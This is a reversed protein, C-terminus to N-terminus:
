SALKYIYRFKKEGIIKQFGFKNCYQTETMQMKSAHNWLTKKHCVYGENDRYWYSPAVEGDLIWNSAKYITGIHNYTTDAFSVLLKVDLRIKRMYTISQSILHSALNKAQYQPHIALRSLEMVQQYSYGQKFAVEQRIPSSYIIVAILQDGLYYGLNVGSRGVRGAYHYKSIFLEAERYGIVKEKVDYFHFDILSLQSLGLWYKVMELVRHKNNFEHEWIYKLDFEPFYSRLYTAKSKDRAIAKPLNHWYDGQVEILLPKKLNIKDQHNVRCDFCYFGVQCEKAKDDYFQVGLDTLLSYLVLQQSSTQPQNLRKQAQIEKYKPDSWAKKSAESCRERAEPHDVYYQRLKRSDELRYEDSAQRDILRQRYEPNSFVQIMKKSLNDLKIPDSWMKKSQLSRREKSKQMSKSWKIRFNEDRWREKIKAAIVIKEQAGQKHTPVKYDGNKWKNKLRCTGCIFGPFWRRQFNIQITENCQCCKVIIPLGTQLKPNLVKSKEIDIEPYVIDKTKTCSMCLHKDQRKTITYIQSREKLCKDCIVIVRDKQNNRPKALGYCEQTRTWNIM